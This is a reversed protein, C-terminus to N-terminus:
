CMWAPMMQKKAHHSRGYDNITVNSKGRGNATKSMKHHILIDLEDLKDTMEEDIRSMWQDVVVLRIPKAYWLSRLM